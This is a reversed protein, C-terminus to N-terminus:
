GLDMDYSGCKKCKPEGNASSMQTAGCECCVMKIKTNAM